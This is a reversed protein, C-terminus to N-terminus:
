AKALPEVLEPGEARSNNVTKKVPYFAFEQSLVADGGSLWQEQADDPLALPMRHHVQAIAGAAAATVIACTAIENEAGPKKWFSMLGAFCVLRGDRRHIFYPQRDSERWEYWGEAPVLCRARRMADRWMPKRAAEELRANHTFRPLEPRTWWHPILGWRGTALALV